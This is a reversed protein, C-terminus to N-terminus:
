SNTISAHVRLLKNDKICFVIDGRFDYTCDHLNYLLLYMIVEVCVVFVSIKANM